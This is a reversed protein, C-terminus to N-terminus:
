STCCTILYPSPMPKLHECIGEFLHNLPAAGQSVGACLQADAHRVKQMILKLLSAVGDRFEPRLQEPQIHDLTVLAQACACVHLVICLNAHLGAPRLMMRSNGTTLRSGSSICVQKLGCAHSIAVRRITELQLDGLLM